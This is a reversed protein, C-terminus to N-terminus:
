NKADSLRRVGIQLTNDGVDFSEVIEGEPADSEELELALTENRIWTEYERLARSLNGTARYEVQRKYM